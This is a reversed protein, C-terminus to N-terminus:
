VFLHLEPTGFSAGREGGGDAEEWVVHVRRAPDFMGYIYIYIIFIFKLYGIVILEVTVLILASTTTQAKFSRNM